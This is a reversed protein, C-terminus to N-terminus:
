GMLFPEAYYQDEDGEAIWGVHGKYDVKFWTYGDQCQPGDLVYFTELQEIQILVNYDTGPGRRLNLTEEDDTKTVRGREHVILFSEPTDECFIHPTVTPYGGPTASPTRTASNVITMRPSLTNTVQVAPTTTRGTCASVVFLISLIM